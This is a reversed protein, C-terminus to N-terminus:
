KPLLKGIKIKSNGCNCAATQDRSDVKKRGVAYSHPQSSEFGEWTTSSRNWDDSGQICVGQRGCNECIAEYRFYEWSM